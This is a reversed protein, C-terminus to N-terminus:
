RQCESMCIRISARIFRRSEAQGSIKMAPFKNACSADGFSAAAAAVAPIKPPTQPNNIQPQLRASQIMAAMQTIRSAFFRLEGFAVSTVTSVQIGHVHTMPRITWKIVRGFVIGPVGPAGGGGIHDTLPWLDYFGLSPNLETHILSIAATTM